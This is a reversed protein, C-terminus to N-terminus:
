CSGVTKASFVYKNPGFTACQGASTQTIVNVSSCTFDSFLQVSCGRPLSPLNATSILASNTSGGQIVYIPFCLGDTPIEATTLAIGNNCGAGEYISVPISTLRPALTPAATVSAATALISLFFATKM